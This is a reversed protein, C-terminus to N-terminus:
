TCRAPERSQSTTSRATSPWIASTVARSSCRRSSSRTPPLPTLAIRSGNVTFQAADDLPELMPNRFVDLFLAEILTATAKGGSGHSLTIREERVRARRRRAREIPDLVQQEKESPVTSRTV